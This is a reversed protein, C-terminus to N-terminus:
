ENILLEKLNTKREETADIVIAEALTNVDIIEIVEKRARSMNTYIINKNLNKKFQPTILTIVFQQESGQLKYSNMSYGLMLNNQLMKDFVLLEEGFKAIINGNDIETIIGIEGNMVSTTGVDEKELKNDSKLLKYKEYTLINYNNKTNLIIDKVKFKVSQNRIKKEIFIDKEKIPNVIEQIKNNLNITGFPTINYVAIVCIDSPKIKRSILKKYEDMIQEITGDYRVYTYDKNIGLSARNKSEYDISNLYFKGDYCDTAQKYLGGEGYRFVKTLTCVPVIESKIMDRMPSGCGIPAIQGLDGNMYIRVNPNAIASILMCLLDLSVMSFEEVFIVDSWIEENTLVAKHITYAERGTLEKIRQAVRGTPSLLLCSLGNDEFMKLSAMLSASKGTGGKADIIAINNECQTKLINSQEETLTGDRIETYKTYDIDLKTSKKIREKVFDSVRKEGLYTTMISLTKEEENYYIVESTKVTDVILPVLEPINCEEEIYYYLSNADLKTDGDEEIQKLVNLILYECRHNTEKFEPQLKMILKDSQEFNRKLTDCLVSYPKSKLAKSINNEDKYESCLAKCDTVDVEYDKFEQLLHYYKYKSTLERVYANLYAEGVGSIKDTNIAEKGETLVLQIFNPYSDLINNAIRESSTCDMLIEFSEEKSLNSLDLQEMSPISKIAYTGGYIQHTSILEIEMEYDKNESLYSYEGKCSFSGYTSLQINENPENLSFSFITYDGNKYVCKICHANVKISM